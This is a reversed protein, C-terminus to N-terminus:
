MNLIISLFYKDLLDLTQVEELDTEVTEYLLFFFSKEQTHKKHIFWVKENTQM